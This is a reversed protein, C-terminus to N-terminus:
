CAVPLESKPAVSALAPYPGSFNALYFIWSSASTLAQLYCAHTKWFKLLPTTTSSSDKASWTLGLTEAAERKATELHSPLAGLDESTGCGGLPGEAGLFLSLASVFGTLAWTSCSHIHFSSRHNLMCRTLIPFSTYLQICSPM